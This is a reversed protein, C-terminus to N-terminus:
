HLEKSGMLPTGCALMKTIVEVESERLPYTELLDAWVGNTQFLLKLPRPQFDQKGSSSM